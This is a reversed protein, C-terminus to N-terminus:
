CSANGTIVTQPNVTFVTLFVAVGLDMERVFWVLISIFMKM